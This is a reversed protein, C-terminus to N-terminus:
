LATIRLYLAVAAAALAALSALLAGRGTTRRGMTRWWRDARIPKGRKNRKAFHEETTIYCERFEANENYMCSRKNCRKNKEPDCMYWVKQKM